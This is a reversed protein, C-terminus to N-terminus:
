LSASTWLIDLFWLKGLGVGRSGPVLTWWPSLWGLVDQFEKDGGRRCAASPQYFIGAFLTM